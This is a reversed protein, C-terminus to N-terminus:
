GSRRLTIVRPLHDPEGPFFRSFRGNVVEGNHRLTGHIGCSVM